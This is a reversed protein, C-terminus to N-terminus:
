NLPIVTLSRNLFHVANGSSSAYKAQFTNSGATLTVPIAACLSVDGTNSGDAVMVMHLNRADDAAITTAGSVTFSMRPNEGSTATYMGAQLIVLALTGTTLSSVTPGATTLDGYSTATRSQDTAVTATGATFMGHAHDSRAVTTAAGAANATGPRETGSPTGFAERGHVHNARALTNGTGASAADGVASSGAIAAIATLGTFARTGAVLSYQTHHDLTADAYHANAEDADTKTWVHKVVAGSSHSVASTGDGNAGGRGTATITNSSRSTCKIKEETSLTPDVVIWFPGTAGTPYGTGDTLTITTASNNIAGNLTTAPAAGAYERREYAM